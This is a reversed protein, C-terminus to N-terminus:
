LFVVLGVIVAGAAAAAVVWALWTKRGGSASVSESGSARDPEQFVFEVRGLRLRDGHKLVDNSVRKDNVFTGNTSLLNVVRWGDADLSLRAHESSVSSDSLVVDCSEARGLVIRQGSLPFSRGEVEVSTGKLQSKATPTSSSEADQLLRDVDDRSFVHTGQPGHERRPAKRDKSEETSM